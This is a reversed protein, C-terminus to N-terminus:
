DLQEDQSASPSDGDAKSRRPRPEWALRWLHANSANLFCTGIPAKEPALERIGVTSVGDHEVIWTILAGYPFATSSDVLRMSMMISTVLSDYDIFAETLLAYLCRAREITIM